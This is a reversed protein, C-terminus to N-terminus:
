LLTVCTCMGYCHDNGLILAHTRCVDILVFSGGSSDCAMLGTAVCIDSQYEYGLLWVEM